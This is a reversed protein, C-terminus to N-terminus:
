GLEFSTVGFARELRMPRVAGTYMRATEFVPALGYSEALAVAERQPAPVDLFVEGGGIAAVLANFIDEAAARDDAVLPGIKHGKRAPRIVGWACLKGDRILARGIHGPTNIWSRLFATRPAPFVTADDAEIAAFPVDALLVIGAAPKAASPVIGGQRVNRHALTFGSKRYNEQQALVGDLGITRAGAHAVAARWIAIGHGHGRLDSRV